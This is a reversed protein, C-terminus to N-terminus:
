EAMLLSQHSPSLTTEWVDKLFQKGMLMFEFESLSNGSNGISTKAKHFIALKLTPFAQRKLWKLKKNIPDSIKVILRLKFTQLGQCMKEWFPLRECRDRNKDTRYRFDIGGLIVSLSFEACRKVSEESSATYLSLLKSVFEKAKEDKLRLEWDIADVDHNEQADYICYRQNSDKGGLYITRSNGEKKASKSSYYEGTQSGWVCDNLNKKGNDVGTVDRLEPMSIVMETDRMKMDIRTVKAGGDILTSLLRLQDKFLITELSSGHIIALAKGKHQASENLVDYPTYYIHVNTQAHRIANSFGHNGHACECWGSGGFTKNILAKLGQLFACDVIANIQHFGIFLCSPSRTTQSDLGPTVSPQGDWTTRTVHSDFKM